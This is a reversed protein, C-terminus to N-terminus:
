LKGGTINGKYIFHAIKLGNRGRITKGQYKRVCKKKTAETDGYSARQKDQVVIINSKTKIVEWASVRDTKRGTM